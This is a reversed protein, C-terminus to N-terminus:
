ELVAAFLKLRMWTQDMSVPSTCVMVLGSACQSCGAQSLSPRWRYKTELVLRARPDPQAFVLEM